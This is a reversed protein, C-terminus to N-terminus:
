LARAVSDGQFESYGFYAFRFLGALVLVVLLAALHDRREKDVPASPQRPVATKLLVPVLAFTDLTVLEQRLSIPGPIYHLLL